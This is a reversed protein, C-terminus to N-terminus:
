HGRIQRLADECMSVSPKALARLRKIETDRSAQTARLTELAAKVSEQRRTAEIQLNQVAQNSEAVDQTCKDNSSSLIAIKLDKESIEAKLTKIRLHGYAGWALLGLLLVGLGAWKYLVPM